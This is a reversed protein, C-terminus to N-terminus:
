KIIIDNKNSIFQAKLGKIQKNIGSFLIYSFLFSELLAINIYLKGLLEM